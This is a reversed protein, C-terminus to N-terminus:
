RDNAADDSPRTILGRDALETSLIYRKPPIMGQQRVWGKLMELERVAQMGVAVAQEQSKAARLAARFYWVSPKYSSQSMHQM